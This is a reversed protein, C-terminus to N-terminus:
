SDIGMWLNKNCFLFFTATALGGQSIQGLLLLSDQLNLYNHSQHNPIEKGFAYFDLGIVMEQGPM